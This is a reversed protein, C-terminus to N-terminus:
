QFLGTLLIWLPAFTVFKKYRKPDYKTKIKKFYDSPNYGLLRLARRCRRKTNRMFIDPKLYGEKIRYGYSSKGKLQYVNYFDDVSVLFEGSDDTYYRCNLLEM